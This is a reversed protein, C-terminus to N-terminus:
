GNLLRVSGANRVPDFSLSSSTLDELIKLGLGLFQNQMDVVSVFSRPLDLPFSSLGARREILM